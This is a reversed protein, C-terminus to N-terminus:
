MRLVVMFERMELSVGLHRSLAVEIWRDSRVHSGVLAGVAGGGVVGVLLEGRDAVSDYGSLLAGIAVGAGVGLVTGLATYTREGRAVELRRIASLALHEIGAVAGVAISDAHLERFRVYRWDTKSMREDARTVYRVQEGPELDPPTVQATLRGTTVNVLLAACSLFVVGQCKM